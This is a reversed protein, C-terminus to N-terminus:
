FASYIYKFAKQCNKILNGSDIVHCMIIFIMSVIRMFEFNSERVNKM